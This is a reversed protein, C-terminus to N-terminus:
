TTAQKKSYKVHNQMKMIHMSMDGMRGGASMMGLCQM